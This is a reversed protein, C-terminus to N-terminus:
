ATGRLVPGDGDFARCRKRLGMNPQLLRVAYLEAERLEVAKREAAERQRREISRYVDNRLQERITLQYEDSDM